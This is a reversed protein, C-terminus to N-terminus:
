EILKFVFDNKQIEPGRPARRAATLHRTNLTQEIVELVVRVNCDYAHIDFGQPVRFVIEAPAGIRERNKHRIPSDWFPIVM